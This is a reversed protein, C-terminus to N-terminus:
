FLKLSEIFKDNDKIAQELIDKYYRHNFNSYDVDYVVPIKNIINLMYELRHAGEKSHTNTVMAYISIQYFAESIAKQREEPTMIKTKLNLFLATPPSGQSFL